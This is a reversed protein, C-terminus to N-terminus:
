AFPKRGKGVWLCVALDVAVFVGGVQGFELASVLEVGPETSLM